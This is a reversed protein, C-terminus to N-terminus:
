KQRAGRKSAAAAALLLLPIAIEFVAAYPGWFSGLFVFLDLVDEHLVRSLALIIAGVPLVLPRYDRLELCQASGLVAVWYFVSIKVMGGAVWIFMTAAELRELFSALSIIRFENMAPFLWKSALSPGFIVITGVFTILMFLGTILTSAAAIKRAGKTKNLFPALAAMTVIEGMWAAPMVAGKLVPVAGHEFVPLLKKFDMESYALINMTIFMGLILPLTIQNVRAFVELGSRVAYAAVAVILMEFALAPTEPMFASVLFSGFQRLVESNMHIYWWVYLLAVAKGPWRGLIAEPFQFLTKGPFRASLRVALRGILLAPLVALLISIWGDQRALKATHSAVFLFATPLVMSVMLFVAQLSSIRGEELM